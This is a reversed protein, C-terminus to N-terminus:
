ENSKDIISDLKSQLQDQNINIANKAFIDIISDKAKKWENHIPCPNDGSCNPFGVLCGDIYKEGDIMTVIEDMTIRKLERNIAFGGNIGKFSIIINHKVLVQLVKGLFHNPINLATSIEIQKILIDKQRSALYMVAQIAYQSSKSIINVM